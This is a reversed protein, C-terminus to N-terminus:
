RMYDLLTRGLLRGTTQLTANHAYQWMNFNVIEEAYDINENKALAEDIALKQDEFSNYGMDLRTVKSSANAQVTLVNDIASDIYGLAESGIARVDDNLMADRLYILSEFLSKGSIVASPEYNNEPINGAGQRVLGIDQLVTGGKLDQLLIKHPTSTKLQIVKAGGRLDGITASVNGNADNIRQVIAEINDGQKINIVMDDIM